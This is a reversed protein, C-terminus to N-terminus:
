PARWDGTLMFAAWHYPDAFPRTEYDVAQPAEAKLRLLRLQRQVFGAPAGLDGALLGEYITAAAALDGARARLRAIDLLTGTGDDDAGPEVRAIAEACTLDRIALQAGALAQAPGSGRGRWREYFERMILGTSLDDVPWLSVILSAAGAYMFARVLGTLEEGPRSESLGSECASLVVLSANLRLGYVDETTLREGDSGGLLVGSQEPHEEDFSAHCALHIVDHAEADGLLSKAAEEGVYPRAGLLGAVARAEARAHRLDNRSDGLVLASFSRPERRGRRARSLALASASPLYCVPNREILPAGDVPVAHLPLHHLPGSPVLCIQDGPESEEQLHRLPPALREDPARVPSVDLGPWDSWTTRDKTVVLMGVEGGDSAVFEALHVAAEGPESALMDRIESASSVRGAVSARAGLTAQLLRQELRRLAPGEQALEEAIRPGPVPLSAGLDTGLERMRGVAECAAQGEPDAALGLLLRRRERAAGLSAALGAAEPGHLPHGLDLGDVFARARGREILELATDLRGAAIAAVRAEGLLPLNRAQWSIRDDEARFGGRVQDNLDLAVLLDELAEAHRGSRALVRGRQRHWGARALAQAGPPPPHDDLARLAARLDGAADLANSLNGAVIMRDRPDLGKRGLMARLTRAAGRHDGQLLHITAAINAAEPDQGAEQLVDLAEQYRGSERLARARLLRAEQALPGQERRGGPNLLALAGPLDGLRLTIDARLLDMYRGLYSSAAGTVEQHDFDILIARRGQEDVRARTAALKDHDWRPLYEVNPLVGLFDVVAEAAALHDMARQVDALRLLVDARLLDLLAALNPMGLSAAKDRAPGLLADSEAHAQGPNLVLKFAILQEVITDLGPFADLVQDYPAARRGLLILLPGRLDPIAVALQFLWRLANLPRLEGDPAVRAARSLDELAGTVNAGSLSSNWDPDGEAHTVQAMGRLMLGHWDGPTLHLLVSLHTLAERPRWAAILVDALLRRVGPDDPHRTALRSLLGPMAMHSEIDYPEARMRGLVELAQGRQDLLVHCRALSLRLPAEEAGDAISATLRELIAAPAEERERAWKELVSQLHSFGRLRPDALAELVCLSADATRGLVDLLAIRMAVAQEALSETPFTDLYPLAASPDSALAAAEECAQEISVAFDALAESDRDAQLLLRARSFHHRPQGPEKDMAITMAEIAEALRGLDALVMSKGQYSGAREPQAAIFKDFLALAEEPRERRYASYSAAFLASPERPDLRLALEALVASRDLDGDHYAARAVRGLSSAAEAVEPDAGPEGWDRRSWLDVLERGAAVAAEFEGAAGEVVVMRGLAFLAAAPRSAGARIRFRTLIHRLGALDGLEGYVGQLEEGLRALALFRQETWEVGDADVRDFGQRLLAEAERLRGRAALKSARRAWGEVWDFAGGV